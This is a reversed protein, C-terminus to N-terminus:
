KGRKKGVCKLVANELVKVAKIREDAYEARNYVAM